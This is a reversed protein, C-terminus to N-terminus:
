PSPSEHAGSSRWALPTSIFSRTTPIQTATSYTARRMAAPLRLTQFDCLLLDPIPTRSCAMRRRATQNICGVKSCTQRHNGKNPHRLAKKPRRTGESSVRSLCWCRARGQSRMHYGFFLCALNKYTSSQARQGRRSQCTCAYAAARSSM